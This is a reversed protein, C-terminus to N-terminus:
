LRRAMSHWRASPRIASKRVQHGVQYIRWCGCPTGPPASRNRPLIPAVSLPLGGPDGPVVAPIRLSPYVASRSMSDDGSPMAIPAFAPAGAGSRDDGRRGEHLFASARCAPDATPELYVTLTKFHLHIKFMACRQSPGLSLAPRGSNLAMQAVHKQFRCRDAPSDLKQRQEKFATPQLQLRPPSPCQEPQRAATASRVLAPLRVAPQSASGNRPTGAYTRRPLRWRSKFVRRVFM